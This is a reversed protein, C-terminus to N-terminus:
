WSSIWGSLTWVKGPCLSYVWLSLFLSVEISLSALYFFLAPEVLSIISGVFWSSFNMTVQISKEEGLRWEFFANIHVCVYNLLCLFYFCKQVVEHSNLMLIVTFYIFIHLILFIVVNEETVYRVYRTFFFFFICMRAYVCRVSFLFFYLCGKILSRYM